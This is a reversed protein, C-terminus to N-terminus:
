RLNIAVKRKQQVLQERLNRLEDDMENRMQEELEAKRQAHKLAMDQAKSQAAMASVVDTMKKSKELLKSLRQQTSKVSKALKAKEASIQNVAFDEEASREASRYTGLAEEDRGLSIGEKLAERLHGIDKLTLEFSFFFLVHLLKTIAAKHQEEIATEQSNAVEEDLRMALAVDADGMGKDRLAKEKEKREKERKRRREKRRTAASLLFDKALSTNAEAELQKELNSVADAAAIPGKAAQVGDHVERLFQRTLCSPSSLVKENQAKLATLFEDVEERVKEDIKRDEETVHSLSSLSELQSSTAADGGHLSALGGPPDSSERRKSTFDDGLDTLVDIARATLPQQPSIPNDNVKAPDLPEVRHEEFPSGEKAHPSSPESHAPIEVQVNERNFPVIPLGGGQLMQVLQLLLEQPLMGGAGAGGMQMATAASPRVWSTPVVLKTVPDRKVGTIPVLLGTAGDKMRGGVLIPVTSGSSPDVITGGLPIVTGPGQGPEIDIVPVDMKSKADYFSWGILIPLSVGSVEDLFYGCVDGSQAVAEFHTKKAKLDDFRSRLLGFNHSSAKSHYNQVKRVEAMSSQVLAKFGEKM